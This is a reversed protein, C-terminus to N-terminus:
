YRVQLNVKNELQNLAIELERLSEMEITYGYIVITQISIENKGIRNVLCRTNKAKWNNSIIYIRQNNVYPTQIGDFDVMSIAVDFKYNDQALYTQLITDFGNTNGPIGLKESSFLSIMDDFIDLQLNEDYDIKDLAEQNAPVVRYHKFGLDQTNALSPNNEEIKSAARIIRERSIEDISKYGENYAIKGGKTPVESGDFNTMYTPEPLTCMIFQRDGGDETNLQMIADATTSSGAFFDLFLGSNLNSMKIMEEILQVPKVTDFVNTGFYEIIQKKGQKNTAVDSWVNSFFTGSNEDNYKKRQPIADDNKGFYIQNEKVLKEYTKKPYAWLKTIKNGSPTTIEYTYGGGTLGASVTIPVPRWQGHEDEFRYSKKLYEQSLPKRGAEFSSTKSYVVIYEGQVSVGKTDNAREKKRKWSIDTTFNVEGFIDDMLIKLNAHENDDISVFIVGTDKLLKKALYLRPYMFTLWASHTAKGQISKLRKLDDDNLAFMDKLQTDSYEFNDPYVFGDSGTNYPPDIYIFDVSNLYNQQLHRLVELNDGTFFLNKSEKNEAKKNHDNDPVIVTTPREGSQKKAYNRGIFDLQYGSSLEDINNEILAKKFKNFDFKPEEIDKGEDYKTATFFDPLKQLLEELFATNPKVSENFKQNDQLMKASGRLLILCRDEITRNLFLQM